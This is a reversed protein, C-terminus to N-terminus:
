AADRGRMTGLELTAHPGLDLGGHTAVIV